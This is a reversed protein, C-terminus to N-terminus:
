ATQGKDGRTALAGLGFLLSGQPHAGSQFDLPLLPHVQEVLLHQQSLEAFGPPVASLLGLHTSGSGSWGDRLRRCTTKVRSVM